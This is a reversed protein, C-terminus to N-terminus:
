IGKINEKNYSFYTDQNGFCKKPVKNEHKLHTPMIAKIPIKKLMLLWTFVKHIREDEQVCM